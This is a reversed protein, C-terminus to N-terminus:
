EAVVVVIVLECGSLREVPGGGFSLLQWLINPWHGIRPIIEVRGRNSGIGSGSEFKSGPQM